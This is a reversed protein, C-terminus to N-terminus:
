VRLIKTCNKTQKWLQVSVSSISDIALAQIKTM